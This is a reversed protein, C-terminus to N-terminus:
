EYCKIEEIKKVWDKIKFILDENKIWLLDRKKNETKINPIMM